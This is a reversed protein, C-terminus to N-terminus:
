ESGGWTRFTVGSLNTLDSAAAFDSINLTTQNGSNDTGYLQNVSSTKAVKKDAETDIYTKVAKQSSVKIDSPASSGLTTDVDANLFKTM